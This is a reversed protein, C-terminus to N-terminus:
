ATKGDKFEAVDFSVKIGDVLKTHIIHNVRNEAGQVARQIVEGEMVKRLVREKLDVVCEKVMANRIQSVFQGGDMWQRLTNLAREMAEKEIKRKVSEVIESVQEDSLKIEM